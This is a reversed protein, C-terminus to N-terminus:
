THQIGCDKVYDLSQAHYLLCAILDFAESWCESLSKNDSSVAEAKRHRHGPRISDHRSEFNMALQYSATHLSLGSM